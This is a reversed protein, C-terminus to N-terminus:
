KNIGRKLGRVFAMHGTHQAIEGTLMALVQGIALEGFPTHIKEDLKEPTISNLYEITKARVAKAYDLSDELKPVPFAAIQEPTYGWGSGEEPLNMKKYWNDSTWVEPQQRLMGNVMSDEARTQHWLIFGISNAEPGPQWKLEEHSLSDLTGDFTRQIGNLLAQIYTISDM